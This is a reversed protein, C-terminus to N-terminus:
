KIKFKSLYSQKEFLEM